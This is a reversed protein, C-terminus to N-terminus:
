LILFRKAIPQIGSIILAVPADVFIEARRDDRLFKKVGHLLQKGVVCLGARGPAHVQKSGKKDTRFAPVPQRAILRTPPSIVTAVLMKLASTAYM